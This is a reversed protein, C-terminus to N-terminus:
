KKKSLFSNGEGGGGGGGRRCGVNQHHIKVVQQNKQSNKFIYYL